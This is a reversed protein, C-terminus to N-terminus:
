KNQASDKVQMSKNFHNKPNLIKRNGEKRLIAVLLPLTFAELFGAVFLAGGFDRELACEESPALGRDLFAFSGAGISSFSFLLGSFSEELNGLRKQSSINGKM